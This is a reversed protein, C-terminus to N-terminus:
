VAFATEPCARLLNFTLGVREKSRSIYRHCEERSGALPACKEHTCIYACRPCSSHLAALMFPYMRTKKDSWGLVDPHALLINAIDHCNVIGSEIAMHLPYRGDSAQVRAAEPWASLLVDICYNQDCTTIFGDMCFNRDGCKCVRACSTACARSSKSVSFSRRLLANLVIHLPLNGFEDTQKLQEPYKEVALKVLSWDAADLLAALYHVTQCSSSKKLDQPIIGPSLTNNAIDGHSLFETYTEDSQAVVAHHAACLLLNLQRWWEDSRSALYLLRRRKEVTCFVSSSFVWETCDEYDNFTSSATHQNNIITSKASQELLVSMPTKGCENRILAVGPAVRLLAILAQTSYVSCGCSVLCHLPFSHYADFLKAAQPYTELLIQLIAMSNVNGGDNAIACCVHYLPTTGRADQHSAAIPHIELLLKMVDM